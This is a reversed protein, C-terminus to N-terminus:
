AAKQLHAPTFAVFPRARVFDLATADDYLDGWGFVEALFRFRWPHEHLCERVVLLSETPTLFRQEPEFTERGIEVRTAPHQGINRVWDTEPGWNSCIVVERTEPRYRLVMAVTEHTQGSRRGVHTLLMFTHGLLWGKGHHYAQLPMQFLWLALRGPRHRLGLMPRSRERPSGTAVASM